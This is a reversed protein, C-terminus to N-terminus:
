QPPTATENPISPTVFHRYAIGALRDFAFALLLGGCIGALSGIALIDRHRLHTTFFHSGVWLAGIGAPITAVAFLQYHFARLGSSFRRRLIGVFAASSVIGLAVLIAASIAVVAAVVIGVGVLFLVICIGVLAFAFLMQSFDDSPDIHPSDTAGLAVTAFLFLLLIASKM